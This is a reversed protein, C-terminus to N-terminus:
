AARAVSRNLRRLGRHVRHFWAVPELFMLPCAGAVVDIGHEECLAVAEDSLAGPGVGKFLWVRPVGREVCARVVDASRSAPVMVLAGDLEGPVAALDPYCPEGLVSTATPHVAVAPIDHKRLEEFITRGFSKPDDSAGVVAIRGAALFAQASSPDIM